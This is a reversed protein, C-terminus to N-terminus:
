LNFAKNLDKNQKKLDKDILQQKKNHKKLGKALAIQLKVRNKRWYLKTVIITLGKETKRKKITNIEERNLLLKFQNSISANAPTQNQSFQFNTVFLENEKTITVYSNSLDFEGKLIMKVAMGTLAIGSEWTKLVTFRYILRKNIFTSRTTVM